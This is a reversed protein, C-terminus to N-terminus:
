LIRPTTATLITPVQTIRRTMVFTLPPLSDHVQVITNMGLLLPLDSKVSCTNLGKSEM